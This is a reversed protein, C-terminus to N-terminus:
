DELSLTVKEKKRGGLWEHLPTGKLCDQLTPIDGLDEIVHQEGVFRTPIKRGTSITITPGFVQECIFIGLSNHLILRHRMDPVHAKTQDFWRHIEIYDEPTGGFKKASSIAHHYPSM